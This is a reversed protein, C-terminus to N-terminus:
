ESAPKLFFQNGICEIPMRLVAQQLTLKSTKKRGQVFIQPTKYHSDFNSPTTCFVFVPVSSTPRPPDCVGRVMNEAQQTFCVGKRMANMINSVGDKNIRHQLGFLHCLLYPSNLSDIAAQNKAMSMCYVSFDDGCKESADKGSIFTDPVAKPLSLLFEVNM